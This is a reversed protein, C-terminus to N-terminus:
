IRSPEQLGPIALLVLLSPVILCGPAHDAVVNRPHGVLVGCLNVLAEVHRVAAAHRGGSSVAIVPLGQRHGTSDGQSARGIGSARATCSWWDSFFTHDRRRGRRPLSATEQDKELGGWSLRLMHTAGWIHQSCSDPNERAPLRPRVSSSQPCRAGEQLM